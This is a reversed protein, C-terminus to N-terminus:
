SKDAVQIGQFKEQRSGKSYKQRRYRNPGGQQVTLFRYIADGKQNKAQIKFRKRATVFAPLSKLQEPTLVWGFKLM